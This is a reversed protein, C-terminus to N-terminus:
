DTRSRDRFAKPTLGVQRRFATTFYAQSSFGLVYGIQSLPMAEDILLRKAAVVREELVYKHPPLGTSRAFLRGFQRPSMSVLEALRHVSTDGGLNTPIFDLVRRLKAPPLGDIPGSRPNGATHSVLRVALAAALSEGYVRKGPFGELLELRLARLISEVSPDWIALPKGAESRDRGPAQGAVSAVFDIDLAAFIVKAAQTQRWSVPAGKAVLCTGTLAIVNNRDGDAIQWKVTNSARLAMGVLWHRTRSEYWVEAALAHQELVMIDNWPANVSTLSPAATGRMLTSPRLVPPPLPPPSVNPPNDGASRKSGITRSNQPRGGAPRREGPPDQDSRGAMKIAPGDMAIEYLFGMKWALLFGVM